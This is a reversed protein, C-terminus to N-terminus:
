AGGGRESGRRRIAKLREGVSKKYGEGALIKEQEQREALMSALDSLRLEPESAIRELVARYQEAMRSITEALFLESRYVIWGTIGDPTEAIAVSLDFRATESEITFPRLTLGPLLLSEDPTNQMIFWVEFLPNRGLRREIKLANILKEFPVDQHRYADLTVGRVRALLDAFTPDGDLRTRLVLSNIFFGIMAETELQGRNANGTGVVIDSQGTQFHLLVKFAALLTMYLTAGSRLALSKLAAATDAHIKFVHAAGRELPTERGPFDTPLEFSAPAGALQRRWYDLHEELAEDRLQERQWVAYDAYQLELEGLPSPEGKAFAEYLAAVERVLVGMSWGDSAIHHMTLVAVHEDEALKILLARLLLDRELDFPQRAEEIGLRRAEEERGDASLGSLDVFPLEVTFTQSIVQVPQGGVKTFSTRLSEHRRVVEGLTRELAAADLRGEVRVAVTLNYLSSGPQLQSIFWLRQQQYSLPLAAGRDARTVSPLPSGDGGRLLAGVVKSLEAVTPKEFLGRLSVEVRFAERVRSVVQTALLSHGGLDFFNENVGVQELKLVEAWIHALVDEVLDRADASSTLYQRSGSPAPLAGRDLKGNPLLPMQELVMVASPVMYEPLSGRVYGRLESETVVRGPEAAVYAILRRGGEGDESALVVADRVAAHSRLVTEVEGLEIRFGRVKVQSDARGVYEIEGDPLYRVLDGTRYMREGADPAFPNPLFREATLEPRNWYGRTVGAGGIYLEGVVGVPVPRLRRDLLYTTVNSVARGIPVEARQAGGEVARLECATAVVTAETPGYTNVLRVQQRVTEHWRSVQGAHAKEGGIVVLRVCEPMVARGAHLEGALLHWYATPLDLVTVGMQGCTRLFGEATSLMEESRLVLMAGRSLCTFIEEAAADFSISAFQLVRDSEKLDFTEGASLIYNVLSRHEVLVGKPRGTSGSTYIVCAANLPSVGSDVDGAELREVAEGNMDLCVMRPHLAPLRERLREQTLLVSAGADELMFALRERPHAPDLPLYAAGAKLVAPLAVIMEASREMLIGVFDEPGVGLRRLEGALRNARGDLEAYTLQRDGCVLAVADPTREVQQEFLQQLCLGRPFEARTDNWESLMLREEAETLLPLESLRRAPDAAVGELLMKLHAGMREITVADFLDTNYEMTATLGERGNVLSLTLDFKATRSWSEMGSARLGPLAVVKSEDANHLDFMVQFLPTHSLDREPQLEEVLREFPVEQHQYAGLCTERVRGLLERFTPDGSADTRLVLTNVFFGILRELELRNRGAIPTGISVDEQGTYRVLLAKFAALLLMFLTVGEGHSLAQLGASLEASLVMRLIAGRSSQVPPRPRDTPLRLLAPAGALQRRWYDLQGELVEGQLWGRQWVAYDAYQLTLEELPSEEGRIFSGYLTGVEQVLVGMSWGDSIIHHMTFLVVHEDAALRLLRARLLPARSLDFPAEAEAARLRELEARQQADPLASLDAVSLPLVLSDLVTQRPDNDSFTFYTRLSDHRRIVENLAWELAAVNLPGSLRLAMPINYAPSDPEFQDLFWLRQQAFSLPLAGDRQVRRLEPGREAEGARKTQEIAAAQEAVTPSEFLLRLPLEVGFLERMRAVVQAALLSHGGLEFFNSHAGVRDVGLVEQWIGAVEQEIGTQPAVYEEESAGGWEPEPLARRDVKGSPTLPLTDLFVVASPVMYEPMRERLGSLVEGATVVGEAVVYAVIQRDGQGRERAVVAAQRVGAQARLAAEVEGLEVRFGRIKVQGDARGLFEIDGGELYRAVDGTRYLRAGPEVCFPDPMFREATLAPRNLYGRALGSGGIYLEGAVGIPVPEGSEDLIYGTANWIPRGIPPLVGPSEDPNWIMHGTAAHTETPGYENHLTCGGLGRLFNKIGETLHLAEGATIIERLSLPVSGRSAAAEALYRLAVYPLFLREIRERSIFELLREVDRRAEDRILVLTGGSGLTSLIEQFSVDFSISAFQLTRASGERTWSALQWSLLNFLAGHEMAVGKPQGTSGSTYIVYCLNDVDAGSEVRASSELAIREWEEGVGVFEVGAGWEAAGRPQGQTLVMRAGSDEVMHRLREAPYDADLPVYAGGAKLIALVGVILKVSREMMVGVPTEPGVGRRRLYHALQNTQADLEHYTLREGEFELAVADPTLRAQREFLEHVCLQEQLEVPPPNFNRLLREREPESLLAYDRLRRSPDEAAAELLRVFHNCLREVTAADFIDRNYEITGRMGDSMETVLMTLDFKTTENYIELPELRMGSLELVEPPTNQLVLQVQFLPTRSLDREPALEEVLRDFTVEQHQYAGLCAEKVRGLLERFSERGDVYARLALTNVFFGIVRELESRTRNAVPTGVVIDSEGTYRWLLVDLASLLLMFLTVGEVRSVGSLRDLLERSLRFHYRAGRSSQVPPRPRDTPLRLLAPAGALQRRWYDLQGELV